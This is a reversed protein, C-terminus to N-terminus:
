RINVDSLTYKNVLLMQRSSKPVLNFFIMSYWGQQMIVVCEM